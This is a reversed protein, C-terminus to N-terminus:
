WRTVPRNTLLLGFRHGERRHLPIRRPSDGRRQQPLGAVAADLSARDPFTLVVQPELTTQGARRAMAEWAPVVVMGGRGAADRVMATDVLRVRQGDICPTVGGM